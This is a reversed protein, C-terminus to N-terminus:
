KRKKKENKTKLECVCLCLVYVVNWKKLTLNDAMIINWLFEHGFHALFVVHKINTWICFWWSMVDRFLLSIQSSPRRSTSVGAFTKPIGVLCCCANVLWMIVNTMQWGRCFLYLLCVCVTDKIEIVWNVIDYCLRYNYAIIEYM